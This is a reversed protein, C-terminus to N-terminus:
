EDYDCLRVGAKRLVTVCRGEGDCGCSEGRCYKFAGTVSLLPEIKNNYM